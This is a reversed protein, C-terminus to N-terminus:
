RGRFSSLSLQYYLILVQTVDKTLLTSICIVYNVSVNNLVAALLVYCTDLFQSPGCPLFVVCAKASKAAAHLYTGIGINELLQMCHTSHLNGHGVAVIGDCLAEQRLFRGDNVRVNHAESQGNQPKEKSPLKQLVM